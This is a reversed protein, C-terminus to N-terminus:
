KKGAGFNGASDDKCFGDNLGGFQTNGGTHVAKYRTMPM